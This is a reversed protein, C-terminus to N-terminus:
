RRELYRLYENLLGNSIHEGLVFLLMKLRFM